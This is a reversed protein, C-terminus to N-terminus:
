LMKEEAENPVRQMDIDNMYVPKSHAAAIYTIMVLILFVILSM